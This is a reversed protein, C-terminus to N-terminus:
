LIIQYDTEGPEGILSARKRIYLTCGNSVKPLAKALDVAHVRALSNLGRVAQNGPSNISREWRSVPNQDNLGLFRALDAQTWRLALRLAKIRAPTWKSDM